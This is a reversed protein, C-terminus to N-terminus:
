RRISLQWLGLEILVASRDPHAQLFAEVREEYSKEFAKVGFSAPRAAPCIGQFLGLVAEQITLLVHLLSYLHAQHDAPEDFYQVAIMVSAEGSPAVEIHRGYYLPNQHMFDDNIRSLVSRIRNSDPLSQSRLAEGTYERRYARWDQNRNEWIGANEPDDVWKGMILAAELCPRLLVWAEYSQFSSLSEFASRAQRQMLLVFPLFSVYSKGESDRCSQLVRGLLEFNRDIEAFASFEESHNLLFIDRNKAKAARYGFITRDEPPM